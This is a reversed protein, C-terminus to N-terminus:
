RLIDGSDVALECVRVLDHEPLGLAHCNLMGSRWAAVVGLEKAAEYLHEHAVCLIWGPFNVAHRFFEEYLEVANGLLLQFGLIGAWDAAIWEQLVFIRKNDTQWTMPIVHEIQFADLRPELDVRSTWEIALIQFLLLRRWRDLRRHFIIFLIWLPIVHVGSTHVSILTVIVVRAECRLTTAGAADRELGHRKPHLTRFDGVM